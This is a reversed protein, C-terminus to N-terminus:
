AEKDVVTFRDDLVAQLMPKVNKLWDLKGNGCGVRPLYFRQPFLWTAASQLQLLSTRILGYDSNHRWFYKTPFTIVMQQGFVFVRNGRARIMSGLNLPLVPYRAAAQLALGRGMIAGGNKDVEGNTPVIM